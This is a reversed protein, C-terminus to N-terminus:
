AAAEALELVRAIVDDADLDTSDIVVADPAQALPSAARTSDAADRRALDAETAAVTSAAPAGCADQLARRSARAAPDAVLFVKVPADPAVTTGIDRGEVVIGGAGIIERQRAVMATRVGPVASVASVAATVDAGRVADTVDTGDALIAPAQPDPVVQLLATAALAELDPGSDLALGKDLALWTLARYMAGTDLYRLGLQAAVGRAVTSKGSGSPGDIAVVLNRRQV